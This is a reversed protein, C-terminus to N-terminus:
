CQLAATISGSLAAEKECGVTEDDGPAEVRLAPELVACHDAGAADQHRLGYMKANALAVVPEDAAGRRPFGLEAAAPPDVELVEAQDLAKGALVTVAEAV